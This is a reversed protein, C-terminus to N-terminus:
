EHQLSVEMYTAGQAPAHTSISMNFASALTDVTAGQAPAHTSIIVKNTKM